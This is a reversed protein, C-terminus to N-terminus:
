LYRMPIHYRTRNGTGSLTKPKGKTKNINRNKIDLVCYKDHFKAIRKAINLRVASLIFVCKCCYLLIVFM